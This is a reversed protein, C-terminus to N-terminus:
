HPFKRLGWGSVMTSVALIIALGAPFGTRPLTTTAVSGNGQQSRSAIRAYASASSPSAIAQGLVSPSATSTPSPTAQSVESGPKSTDSAFRSTFLFYGVALAALVLGITILRLWRSDEM